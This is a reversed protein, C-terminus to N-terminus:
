EGGALMTYIEFLANKNERQKEAMEARLATLQETLPVASETIGGPEKTDPYTFIIKKTELDIRYGSCEMFDQANEGYALEVVGVSDRVRESLSLYSM